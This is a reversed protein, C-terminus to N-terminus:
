DFITVIVVNNICHSLYFYQRPEDRFAIRKPIVHM